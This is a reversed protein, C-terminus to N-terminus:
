SFNNDEDTKLEPDYRKALAAMCLLLKSCAHHGAAGLDHAWSRLWDAPAIHEALELERLARWLYEGMQRYFGHRASGKDLVWALMRNRARQNFTELIADIQVMAHIEPDTTQTGGKAATLNQNQPDTSTKRSHM